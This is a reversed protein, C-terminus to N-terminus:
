PTLADLWIKAVRSIAWSRAWHRAHQGMSAREGPDDCLERLAQSWQHPRDVLIGTEYNDVFSAYPGVNSAIVPIGLAAYELAKIPSKSRNFIHPRLPALGISFDISRLYDEVSGIWSTHRVGPFGALYNHGILHVDPSNRRIFKRVESDCETWDMAHTASGAWGITILEQPAASFDIEFLWDPVANPVVRVDKAPALQKVREALAPTTVTVRDAARINARANALLEDTYYAYSNVNSPDISWLDDDLEYVLLPRDRKSKLDQWVRSPGPLCIRQGVLVDPNMWEPGFIEVRKGNLKADGAWREGARVEWDYQEALAGSPLLCRYYGCGARDAM